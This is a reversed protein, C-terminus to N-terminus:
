VFNNGIKLKCKMAWDKQGRVGNIFSFISGLCDGSVELDSGSDLLQPLAQQVVSEIVRSFSKNYALWVDTAQNAGHTRNLEFFIESADRFINTGHTMFGNASNDLQNNFHAPSPATESTPKSELSM